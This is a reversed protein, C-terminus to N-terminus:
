LSSPSLEMLNTACVDCNPKQLYDYTKFESKLANYILIQNFLPEGVGCILKMVEQAMVSSIM